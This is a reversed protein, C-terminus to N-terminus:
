VIQLLSESIAAAAEAPDNARTIPRGVVLYTAGASLAAAPTMTRKQDGADSGEPRIGPVMLIMDKGVRDRVAIIESPSCIIGDLGCEKALLVLREVQAQVPVGQGVAALDGDDLSTLVTVGLLNLKKSATAAAEVAERMMTVGGSTHITLFDVGLGAVARVAGAVTNPIDHLKLDLFIPLGLDVIARVGDPGLASYFELGLKLGGVHPAVKHALQLAEALDPTDIAVFVPSKM